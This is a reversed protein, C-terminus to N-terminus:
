LDFISKSGAGTGSTGESITGDLLVELDSENITISLPRLAFSLYSFEPNAKDVVPHSIWLKMRDKQTITFVKDRYKVKIIQRKVTRVHSNRVRITVVPQSKIADWLPKYKSAM